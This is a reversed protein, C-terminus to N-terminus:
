RGGRPNTPRTHSEIGSEMDAPLWLVVVILLVVGLLLGLGMLLTIQTDM